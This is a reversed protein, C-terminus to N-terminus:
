GASACTDAVKVISKATLKPLQKEDVKAGAAATPMSKTEAVGTITVQHNLQGRLDVAPTSAATVIYTRGGSAASQSSRDSQSQGPQSPSAPSSMAPTIEASMKANELLFVTPGSGQILCGTLVQDRETEAPSASPQPVPQPTPQPQPRAPNADQAAVMTGAIALAAFVSLIKDMMIQEKNGNSV